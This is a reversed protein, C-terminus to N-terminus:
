GISELIKLLDMIPYISDSNSQLTTIHKLSTTDTTITLDNKGDNIHTNKKLPNTTDTEITILM